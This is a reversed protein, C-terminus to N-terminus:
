ASPLSFYFTSGQGPVSDVWIRGNHREIIRKCIALGIGTGPYEEPLHLRQFLVFIREFYQPEIGIGNDRVSIIWEKGEPHASVHIQPPNASRFKIANGVLNQMLQVLQIEDGYVRPLPDHSLTAGTEEIAIQLNDAVQEVITEFELAAFPRGRSGVRSYALLDNILRQMRQAGETIYHIYDDAREDLQGRYRRELLQTFSSVMRLPEQLDHSTLYAFQELDANSRALDRTREELLALAQKRDSIDEIITVFYDPQGQANRVLSATIQTWVASGDKRLYRKETSYVEQQDALMRQTNERNAPLDEPFTIDDVSRNLLEAEPYGLIECARANMRLFRRDPTVYVMGLAAQEFAARFREESERLAEEMLKQATIDESIGLMGIVQGLPDHLPTKSKRVWKLSGDPQVRAEEFFLRPTDKAMIENDEAQYRAAVDAPQLESDTKGILEEPVSYGYAQAFAQNCGLYRSERDKWFIRQPLADIVQRLMLRSRYLEDASSLHERRHEATLRENERRLDTLAETIDRGISLLYGPGGPAGSLSSHVWSIQRVEGSADLWGGTWVPSYPQGAAFQALIRRMGEWDEAPLLQSWAPQGQVADADRGSLRQCARNFRVMCGSSDTVIVLLSEHELLAAALLDDPIPAPDTPIM